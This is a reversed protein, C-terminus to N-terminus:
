EEDPLYVMTGDELQYAVGLRTGKGEAESRTIKVAEIKAAKKTILTLEGDASRKVVSVESNRDLLDQLGMASLFSILVAVIFVLFIDILNIVALMPDDAEPIVGGTGGLRRKFRM